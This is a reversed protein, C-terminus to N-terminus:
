ILSAQSPSTTTIWSGHSSWFIDENVFLPSLPPPSSQCYAYFLPFHKLYDILHEMIYGIDGSLQGLVDVQQDISWLTDRVLDIAVGINDIINDAELYIMTAEYSTQIATELDM